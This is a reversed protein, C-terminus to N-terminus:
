IIIDQHTDGLKKITVGLLGIPGVNIICYTAGSYLAVALPRPNQSLAIPVYSTYVYRPLLWLTFLQKCTSVMNHFIINAMTVLMIM